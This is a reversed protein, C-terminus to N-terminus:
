IQMDLAGGSLAMVGKDYSMQMEQEARVLGNRYETLSIKLDSM